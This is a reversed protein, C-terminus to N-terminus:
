GERSAHLAEFGFAARVVVKFSRASNNASAAGDFKMRFPCRGLIFGQSRRRCLIFIHVRQNEAPPLRACKHRRYFGRGLHTFLPRSMQRRESGPCLGNSWSDSLYHRRRVDISHHCPQPRACPPFGSTRSSEQSLHRRSSAAQPPPRPGCGASKEATPKPANVLASSRHRSQTKRFAQDSTVFETPFPSGSLCARQRSRVWNRSRCRGSGKRAAGRRSRVISNTGSGGGIPYQPVLMTMPNTRKDGLRAEEESRMARTVPTTRKM